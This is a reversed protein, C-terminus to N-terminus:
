NNDPKTPVEDDFDRQCQECLMPTSEKRPAILMVLVVAVLLGAVLV